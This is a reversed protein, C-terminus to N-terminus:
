NEFLNDIIHKVINKTRPVSDRQLYETITKAIIELKPPNYLAAPVYDRSEQQWYAQVKKDTQTTCFNLADLAILSLPRGKMLWDEATKWDFQSSAALLGWNSTVNVIKDRNREIWYLIKSNHFHFLANSNEAFLKASSNEIERTINEFAEDFPLCKAIAEAFILLENEKRKNWQQRMWDAAYSGLVKAAIEYVKYNIARNYSIKSDLYLLLSQKDYNRLLEIVENSTFFQVCAYDVLKELNSKILQLDPFPYKEVETVDIHPQTAEGTQYDYFDDHLYYSHGHIAALNFFELPRLAKNVLRNHCQGCLRYPQGQDAQEEIEVPGTKCSECITQQIKM